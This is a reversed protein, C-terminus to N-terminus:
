LPKYMGIVLAFVQVNTDSEPSSLEVPAQHKPDDSEPMFLQKGDKEVYRKVTTEVLGGRERRLAIVDNNRLPRAHEFPVGIAYSGDPMLKNMSTGDVAMAIQVSAPYDPSPAAPIRTEDEYQYADADTWVGAAIRGVVPITTLPIPDNSAPRDGENGSLLWSVSVNFAKAYRRAADLRLGRQGNEHSAYTSYGWGFRQAAEAASQFGAKQRAEQLREHPQKM